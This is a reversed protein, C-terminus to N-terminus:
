FEDVISREEQQMSTLLMILEDDAETIADVSQELTYKEEM